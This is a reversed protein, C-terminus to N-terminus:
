ALGALWWPLWAFEGVAEVVRRQKPLSRASWVLPNPVTEGRGVDYVAARAIAIFFRQLDCM